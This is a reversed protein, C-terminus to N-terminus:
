LRRMGADGREKLLFIMDIGIWVVYGITGVLVAYTDVLELLKRLYEGPSFILVVSTRLFYIAALLTVFVLTMRLFHRLLYGAEGFMRGIQIGGGMRGAPRADRLNESDGVQKGFASLRVRGDGSGADM